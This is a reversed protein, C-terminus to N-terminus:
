VPHSYWYSGAASHHPAATEAATCSHASHETDRHKREAAVRTIMGSQMNGLKQMEESM